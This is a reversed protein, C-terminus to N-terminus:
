RPANAASWAAEFAERAERRLNFLRVRVEFAEDVRKSGIARAELELGSEALKFQLPQGPPFAKPARLTVLLDDVNTIAGPLDGAIQIPVSSM